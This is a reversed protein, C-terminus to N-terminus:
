CSTFYASYVELVVLFAPTMHYILIIMAISGQIPNGVLIAEAKKRV